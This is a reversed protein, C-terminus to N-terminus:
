IKMKNWKSSIDYFIYMGIFANLAIAAFVTVIILTTIRCSSKPSYTALKKSCSPCYHNFKWFTDVCFVLLGLFSVGGVFALCSCIVWAWGLTRLKKDVNTTVRLNCTKCTTRTSFKKFSNSEYYLSTVDGNEVMLQDFSCLPETHGEQGYPPRIENTSKM